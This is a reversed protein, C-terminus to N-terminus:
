AKSNNQDTHGKIMELLDNRSLVQGHATQAPEDGQTERDLKIKKLQLDVMKLKKNLKATKATLAHGLMAGAVAFIESAYRSDVQMGLDMLNDYSEKAMNALDDLERDGADLDRVMPLAADIKDITDNIEQLQLQTVPVTNPETTDTHDGSPPLDFLDELKRTM